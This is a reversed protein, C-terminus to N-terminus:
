AAKAVMQFEGDGDFTVDLRKASRDCLWAYRLGYLGHVKGM